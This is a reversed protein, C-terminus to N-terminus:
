PYPAYFFDLLTKSQGFGLITIVSKYFLLSSRTVEVCIHDM